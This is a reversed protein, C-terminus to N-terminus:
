GRRVEPNQSRVGAKREDKSKAQGVASTVHLIMATHKQLAPRRMEKRKGEIELSFKEDREHERRQEAACMM